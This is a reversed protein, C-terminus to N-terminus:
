SEDHILEGTLSDPVATHTELLSRFREHGFLMVAAALAVLIELSYILGTHEEFIVALTPVVLLAVILSAIWARAPGM